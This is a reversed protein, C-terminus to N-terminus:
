VQEARDYFGWGVMTSRSKYTIQIRFPVIKLENGSKEAEKEEAM